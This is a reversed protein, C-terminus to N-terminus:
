DHNNEENEVEIASISCGHGGEFHIEKAACQPCAFSRTHLTFTHGCHQCTCSLPQIEIDLRAKDALTNEAFIEFCGRLTQEEICALLGMTLRVSVIRKAQYKRAEEEAIRLIGAVLTAEHM